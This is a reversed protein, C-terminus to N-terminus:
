KSEREGVSADRGVQRVVEWVNAVRTVEVVRRMNNCGFQQAIIGGFREGGREKAGANTGPARVAAM